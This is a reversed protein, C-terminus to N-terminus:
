LSSAQAWTFQERATRHCDLELHDCAVGADNRVSGCRRHIAGSSDLAANRSRDARRSTRGRGTALRFPGADLRDTRDFTALGFCAVHDSRRAGFGVAGRCCVRVTDEHNSGKWNM